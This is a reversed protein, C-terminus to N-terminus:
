DHAARDNDRRAELAHCAPCEMPPKLGFPYIAMSRHHCAACRMWAAIWGAPAEAWAESALRALGKLLSQPPTEPTVSM